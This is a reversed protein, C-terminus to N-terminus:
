TEPLYSYCRILRVTAMEVRPRQQKEMCWSFFLVGATTVKKLYRKKSNSCSSASKALFDMQSRSLAGIWLDSSKKAPRRVLRHLEGEEAGVRPCQRRHLLGEGMDLSLAVGDLLGVDLLHMGYTEIVNGLTYSFCSSAMPSAM